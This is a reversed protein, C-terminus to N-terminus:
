RRLGQLTFMSDPVDVNFELSKYTVQTREGPRDAPILTMVMPIKHGSVDRVDSFRMTRVLVGEEDFYEVSEPIVKSSVTVVVSGWVVPADPKPTLRVVWSGTGGSPRQEIVGTFQESLRNEKVLDDNTFHSGMWSNSMMGSPVKMTRDVKPLYNWINKGVKLTAIGKDKAPAEILILSRDKGKSWAKIQVTREYRSTKVEMELLSASSSGRQIDDTADLLEDITPEGAHALGLSLFCATFWPRM